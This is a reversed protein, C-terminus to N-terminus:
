LGFYIEILYFGGPKEAAYDDRGNQVENLTEQLVKYNLLVSNISAHRVMWRTPCLTRLGPTPLDGIDKRIRDFLSLQKPSFKILQVFEFILDNVFANRVIECQKSVSQLCLNLSHAVYHVYLARDCEKKMLAQVGKRIESM